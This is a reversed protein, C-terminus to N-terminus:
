GNAEDSTESERNLPLRIRFTTGTGAETEFEITGGHDRVIGSSIALGLGRGEGVVRTTYFPEFIHSQAAPDIGRGHDAIELVAFSDATSTRVIVSQGPSSAQVANLLIGHIVQHIRAPRCPVPPVAGFETRIAVQSQSLTAAMMEVTMTVAATLDIRDFAAEDLRAFDRLNQVIDRVRKLGKQTSAILEPVYSRLWSLDADQSVDDIQAALEPACESIVPRAAEYAEILGFLSNLTNRLVAVNNSVFAIPNNIEHAMGAALQGLGAIKETEILAAQTERLERNQEALRQELQIIRQGERVRVRLEERDAPKVLFDDAGAEMATVLDSKEARATLLIIYVYSARDDARIRRILQLGDMRPMQWDTLVLSVEHHGFLEWADVGDVAELVDYGWKQLQGALLQRTTASDEALLIKM